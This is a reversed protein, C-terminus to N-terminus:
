HVMIFVSKAKECRKQFLTKSKECGKQDRSLSKAKECGLFTYMPFQFIAGGVAVVLLLVASEEGQNTPQAAFLFPLIVFQLM